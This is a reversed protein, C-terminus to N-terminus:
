EHYKKIIQKSMLEYLAKLGPDNEILELHRAITPEDGRRAPGTQADTPSLQQVKAASELILPRLLNFDLGNKTLLEEAMHYLHNSFNNVMVATLHLMQRQESNIQRVVGSIKEALATLEGMVEDDCAELCVPVQSFDVERSRTFTQLPYFVGYKAFGSLSDMGTNGSTHAVIGNVDPLNDAVGQVKADPIALLYLDSEPNMDQLSDPVGCGLSKALQAAHRLNPSYVEAIDV